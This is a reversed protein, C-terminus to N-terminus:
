WVIGTETAIFIGGSFFFEKTRGGSSPLFHNLTRQKQRPVDHLVLDKSGKLAGRLTPCSIGEVGEGVWVVSVQVLVNHVVDSLGGEVFAAFVVGPHGCCLM